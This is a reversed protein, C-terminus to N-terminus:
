PSVIQILCDSSFFTILLNLGCKKVYIKSYNKLSCYLYLLKLISCAEAFAVSSDLKYLVYVITKSGNNVELIFFIIYCLFSTESIVEDETISGKKEEIKTAFKDALAVM